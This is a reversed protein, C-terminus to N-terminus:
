GTIPALSHDRTFDFVPSKILHTCRMVLLNSNRKSKYVKTILLSIQAWSLKIPRKPLYIVLPSVPLRLMRIPIGVM